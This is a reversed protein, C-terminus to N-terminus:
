KKNAAESGQEKKFLTLEAAADGIMSPDNGLNIVSKVALLFSDSEYITTRAEGLVVADNAHSTDKKHFNEAKLLAKLGLIFDRNGTIYSLMGGGPYREIALHKRENIWMSDQRKWRYSVTNLYNGMSDVAMSVLQKLDRITLDRNKIGTLAEVDSDSVLLQVVAPIKRSYVLEVQQAKHFNSFEEKSLHQTTTITQGEQTYFQVKVDYISNRRVTLSSGDVITGTVIIGDKKLQANKDADFRIIFLIAVAFAPIGLLPTFKHRWNQQSKNKTTLEKWSRFDAVLQVSFFLIFLGGLMGTIIPAVVSIRVPMWYYFLLFSFVLLTGWIIRRKHM